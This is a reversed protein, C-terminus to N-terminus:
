KQNTHFAFSLCANNKSLKKKREKGRVIKTKEKKKEKKSIYYFIIILILNPRMNTCRFACICVHLHLVTDNILSCFFLRTQGVCIDIGM